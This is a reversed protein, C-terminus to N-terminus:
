KEELKKVRQDITHMRWVLFMTVPIAGALILNTIPALEKSLISAAASGILIVESMFTQTYISDRERNMNSTYRNKPFIASSSDIKSAKSDQPELYKM